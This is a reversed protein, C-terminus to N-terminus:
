VLSTAVVIAGAIAAGYFAWISVSAFARPVQKIQAYKDLALSMGSRASSGAQQEYLKRYARELSLYYIDLLAFVVLVGCSIWAIDKDSEVKALAALGAVLSVSWGKLLFSNSAMRTIVAQILKLHELDAVHRTKRV